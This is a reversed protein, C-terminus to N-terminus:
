TGNRRFGDFVMPKKDRLEKRQRARHDKATGQLPFESM